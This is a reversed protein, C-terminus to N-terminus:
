LQRMKKISDHLADKIHRVTIGTSKLKLVSLTCASRPVKVLLDFEDQSLFTKSSLKGMMDLIESHYIGGECVLNYIGYPAGMKYLELAQSVADGIHSLSNYTDIIENYKSLKTLINKNDPFEDFPMRIRLIYCDSTIVREGAYKSIAYTSELFNPREDERWNLDGNYICGSSFHIWPIRTDRCVSNILAPLMVNAEMADERWIECQDINPYGTKGACNIILSTEITKVYDLLEKKSHIRKPIHFYSFGKQIVARTMKSAIYGNGIILITM